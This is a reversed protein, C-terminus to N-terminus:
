KSQMMGRGRPRIEDCPDCYFKSHECTYHYGERAIAYKTWVVKECINRIQGECKNYEGRHEHQKEDLLDCDALHYSAGLYQGRDRAAEAEQRSEGPLGFVTAWTESCSDPHGPEEGVRWCEMPGEDRDVCVVWGPQGVFGAGASKWKVPATKLEEVMEQRSQDREEIRWAM